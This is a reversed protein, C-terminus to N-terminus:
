IQLASFDALRDFRDMMSKLLNLRNMRLNAEPCMVMVHDFLDDVFPKVERLLSLLDPFADKAWLHDWQPVIDQWANALKREQSEVLLDERYQGNLLRGEETEMAQKRIINAMRKFTQVSATFGEERSFRDLAEIRAALARVDAFGAGVAADVVRTSRGQALFFARLRQGFFELLRELADEPALKWAAQAYGAQADRLLDRADLRLGHEMIIRCIGLAARRLAYPDAAGTPIMNLGFCGVLTDAKDALALLAGLLSQPVDSDPGLPLYHESIAKGVDKAEGQRVAYIGGMTGQLETFEKVMESVLDMKALRGARAALAESEPIFREALRRTLRELRRSKDGMSGLPALFTVQDLMELWAQATTRCDVQFFFRADELRAKLVREWGKRVQSEDKPRLNIVTLFHPLLAGSADELGFSKQHKEMSTLLVERPLELYRPDFGGLIARPYEVLQTVEGLLGQKWVIWAGKGRALADGERKIVESRLTRDLVVQGKNALIQFFSNADPVSFPGKGMIRHGFTLRDAHIGAVCLPVVDEGLLCLLWRLPRGFVFEKDAWRMKKAFDLGAILERLCDPLVELAPRGGAKKRLAAYAGRPTDHAFLDAVNAGHGAAFGMAPKLPRGDPAFAAQWPPGILLEEEMRQSVCLANCHVVLRRPTSATQPSDADLRVEDLIVPLRELIQQELDPLFRAPMEEFGLELVLASRNM